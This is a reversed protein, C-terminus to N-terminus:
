STQHGKPQSQPTLGGPNLDQSQCENATHGHAFQKAERLKLKRM